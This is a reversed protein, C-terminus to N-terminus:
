TITTYVPIFGLSVGSADFVEIKKALTGVAVTATASNGVGLGATTLVKGVATVTSSTSLPTAGFAGDALDGADLQRVAVDGGVTEQVLVQSTGGTASLDAGTGGDEPSIPLSVAFDLENFCNLLTKKTRMELAAENALFSRINQISTPM